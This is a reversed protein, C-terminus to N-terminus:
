KTENLVARVSSGVNRNSINIQLTKAASILKLAFVNNPTSSWYHFAYEDFHSGRGSDFTGAAPLFISNYKYDDKGTFKCGNM